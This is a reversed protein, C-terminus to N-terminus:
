RPPVREALWMNVHENITGVYITKNDPAVDVSPLVTVTHPALLVLEKPETGAADGILLRDRDAIVVHRGDALWAADSGRRSIRKIAGSRQNWVGVGGASM